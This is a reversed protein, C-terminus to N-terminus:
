IKPRRQLIKNLFSMLYRRIIANLYLCNWIYKKSSFYSPLYFLINGYNVHFSKVRKATYHPIHRNLLKLTLARSYFNRKFFFSQAQLIETKSIKSIKIKDATLAKRLIEEGVSSRVLILSKGIKEKKMLEPLWPDGFSIDSLECTHDSCLLCRPPIFDFHFASAYLLGHLLPKINTGRPIIKRKGNKLLVSIKGPWGRDRYKLEKIEDKGISWKQLYYETGLFTVTHSCFLGLHLLIKKRLERNIMEFKRIGHIHCPLGVVAFKGDEKLINKLGVNLPVPCYKSGSASIIEEKTRAIFVEPELPRYRSMKTVLAGDIIGEEIAFLLLATILGGSSSNYRVKYDVANGIYAAIFNGLLVDEPLKNFIVTNMREFDESHGPCVKLCVGCNNCREERVRPFYVGKEENKIMEIATKPCASVCTGCGTCLGNEYVIRVNKLM